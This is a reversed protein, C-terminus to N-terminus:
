KRVVVVMVNGDDGCRRWVFAAGNLFFESVHSALRM